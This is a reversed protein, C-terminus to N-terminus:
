AGAEVAAKRLARVVQAKRRSPLDNWGPVAFNSDLGIVTAFFDGYDSLDTDPDHLEAIIAGLSCCKLDGENIKNRVEFLAENGSEDWGRYYAGKVLGTREIREAARTFVEHDITTTM